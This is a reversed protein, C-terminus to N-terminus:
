FINKFTASMSSVQLSVWVDSLIAVLWEWQIPVHCVQDITAYGSTFTSEM